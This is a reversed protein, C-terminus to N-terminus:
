GRAKIFADLLYENPIMQRLEDCIPFRHRHLSAWPSRLSLNGSIPQSFWSITHGLWRMRYPVSAALPGEREASGGAAALLKKTQSDMGAMTGVAGAPIVGTLFRM